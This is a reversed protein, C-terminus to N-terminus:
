AALREAFAQELCDACCYGCVGTYDPFLGRCTPCCLWEAPPHWTEKMQRNLARICLGTVILGGLAICCFIVYLLDDTM